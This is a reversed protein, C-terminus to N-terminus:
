GAKWNGVQKFCDELTSRFMVVDHSVCLMTVGLQLYDQYETGKYSVGCVVHKGRARAAALTRLLGDHIANQKAEETMAGLSMYFDSPGFAVFDIGDIDMIDDIEEIAEVSEIMVGILPERNSWEVWEARDRRGWEGSQCLPGLGRNGLPPFKAAAVMERADRASLVNPILVGGAGLELVKRVLFPDDRDVRVIPVVDAIIAANIMNELSDDRRWSHETDIRVFDIGAYGAAAVMAPSHSYIATGVAVQGRALKERVKNPRRMLVNNM